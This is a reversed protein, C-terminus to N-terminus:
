FIANLNSYFYSGTSRIFVVSESKRRALGGSIVLDKDFGDLIIVEFIKWVKQAVM